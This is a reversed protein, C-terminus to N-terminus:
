FKSIKHISYQEILRRQKESIAKLRMIENGLAISQKDTCGHELFGDRAYAILGAIDNRLNLLEDKTENDNM